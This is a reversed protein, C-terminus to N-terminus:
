MTKHMGNIEKNYRMEADPNYSVGAHRFFLSVYRLIWVTRVPSPTASLPISVSMEDKSWAYRSHKQM